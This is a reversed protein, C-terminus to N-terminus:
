QSGGPVIMDLVERAVDAAHSKVHERDQATQADATRVTEDYAATRSAESDRRFALIEGSLARDDEERLARAQARAEEIVSQAAKRADTVGALLAREHSAVRQLLSDGTKTEASHTM